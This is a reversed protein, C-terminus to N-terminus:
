IVRMMIIKLMLIIMLLNGIMTYMKIVTLMKCIRVCITRERKGIYSRKQVFDGEANILTVDIDFDSFSYVNYNSYVIIDDKANGGFQQSVNRCTKDQLVFGDIDNAISKIISDVIVNYLKNSEILEDFVYVARFRNNVGIINSSTSYLISPKASVSDNFQNISVFTDDLDIWVSQTNLFNAITKEKVGFVIDNSKFVHCFSFGEKILECLADVDVRQKVYRMLKWDNSNPKQKFKQLSVSIDFKEKEIKM